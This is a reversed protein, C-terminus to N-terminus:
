VHHQSSSGSGGLFTALHPLRDGPQRPLDAVFV